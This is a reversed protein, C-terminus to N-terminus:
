LELTEGASRGAARPNYSPMNPVNQVGPAGADMQSYYDLLRALQKSYEKPTLNRWPNPLGRNTYWNPPHLLNQQEQAVDFGRSKETILTNFQNKLYNLQETLNECKNKYFNQIHNM